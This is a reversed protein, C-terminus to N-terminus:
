YVRPRGGGFYEAVFRVRGPTAEVIEYWEREFSSIQFIWHTRNKLRLRGLPLLYSVGERDCYTIRASLDTRPGSQRANGHIWGSIFTELGCGKDEPGPPYKKVAEIYSLSFGPQELSSTYWAELQAPIGRRVARPFPHNWNAGGKLRLIAKHEVEDIEELLTTTLNRFPAALRSVTSIQEVKVDGAIALGEKPYPLEFPGPLPETSRYDTRIGVRKERGVLVLGPALASLPTPSPEVPPWFTWRRPPESGWWKKPVSDLTIPIEVNTVDVPWPTSWDGDYAAFPLIVGDRRMVGVLVREAPQAALPAVAPTSMVVSALAIALVIRPLMKVTPFGFVLRCFVPIGDFKVLILRRITVPSSRPM